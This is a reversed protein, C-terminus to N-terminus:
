KARIIEVRPACGSRRRLKIRKDIAAQSWIGRETDAGKIQGYHHAQYIAHLLWYANHEAVGISTAADIAGLVAKSNSIRIREEGGGHKVLLDHSSTVIFHHSHSDIGGCRGPADILVTEYENLAPPSVPRISPKHEPQWQYGPTGNVNPRECCCM